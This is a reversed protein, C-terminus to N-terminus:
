VQGIRGTPTSGVSWRNLTPQKVMLSLACSPPAKAGQSQEALGFTAKVKGKAETVKVFKGSRNLIASAKQNSIDFAEEVQGCTVAGNEAIFEAIKEALEANAVQAKSPKNSKYNKKKDLLELEHGCFGVIEADNACVTMIKNLMERKTMTM